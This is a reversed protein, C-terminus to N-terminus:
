SRAERLRYLFKEIYPDAQNELDTLSGRAYVAGDKILVIDEAFRRAVAPDATALIRAAQSKEALSNLLNIILSSTQPDLGATPEDFIALQPQVILARALAARKRMGGSLSAPIRQAAEKLGVQALMELIEERSAPQRDPDGRTSEQSALLLNLYVSSSDFLAGAQFQMGIRRRLITKRHNPIKNLDEGFLYVDGCDPKILGVLIKLITSKGSSSEGMLAVKHGPLLDLNLGQLITREGFSLGVNELSSIPQVTPDPAIEKLSDPSM